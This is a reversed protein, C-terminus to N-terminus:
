PAQQAFWQELNAVTSFDLVAEGLDDFPEAPVPGLRRRYAVKVRPRDGPRMKMKAM